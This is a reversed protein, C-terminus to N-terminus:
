ADTESRERLFSSTDGGSPVVGVLGHHLFPSPRGAGESSVELSMQAYIKNNQNNYQEEITFIKENMFLINEHRIKTHWQLFREARTWPIEKFGPTLLHGKSCLHARMHLDDRILCSKIPDIIEAKLVRDEIELASKPSDVGM